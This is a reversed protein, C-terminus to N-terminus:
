YYAVTHLLAHPHRDAHRVLIEDIEADLDRAKEIQTTLQSRLSM